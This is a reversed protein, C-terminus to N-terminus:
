DSNFRVAVWGTAPDYDSVVEDERDGMTDFVKGSVLNGDNAPFVPVSFRPFILLVPVNHTERDVLRVVPDVQDVIDGDQPDVCRELKILVNSGDWKGSKHVFSRRFHHHRPPTRNVLIPRPRIYKLPNLHTSNTQLTPYEFGTKIM